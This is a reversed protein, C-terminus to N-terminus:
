RNTNIILLTTQRRIRAVSVVSAIHVVIAVHTCVGRVRVAPSIEALRRQAHSGGSLAHLVTVEASLAVVEHSDRTQGIVNTDGVCLGVGESHVLCVLVLDEHRVAYGGLPTSRGSTRGLVM